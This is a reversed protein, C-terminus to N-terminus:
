MGIIKLLERSGDKNEIYIKAGNKLSRLLDETLQISSSILQTRNDTNTLKRLNDLRELTSPQLRMQVLKSKEESVDTKNAKEAITAM